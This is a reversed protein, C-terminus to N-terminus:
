PLLIQRLCFFGKGMLVQPNLNGLVNVKMDSINGKCCFRGSLLLQGFACVCETLVLLLEGQAASAM